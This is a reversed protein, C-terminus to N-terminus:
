IQSQSIDKDETVETKKVQKGEELIELSRRIAKAIERVVPIAVTNGFQKYLQSDSVLDYPLIFGSPFGQLKRCENPTLKRPSKKWKGRDILIESGDKYYRATLTRTYPDDPYFKSFGFGVKRFKYREKRDQHSKWLKTSIKYKRDEEENLNDLVDKVKTKTKPPEPWTFSDRIYNEQFYKNNIGVIFIRERKQPLGFDSASLVKIDTWYNLDKLVKLITNLTDGNNLTKLRKVNELLFGKPQHYALIKGIEFFLTGRTDDFGLQRGAHSFPQCPFGATLIDHKKFDKSSIPKIDGKPDEGFNEKYTIRAYKDNECSDVCEMGAQQFAIRIGGIGAFLDIFKYM